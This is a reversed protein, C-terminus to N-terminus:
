TGFSFLSVWSKAKTQEVPRPLGALERALEKYKTGLPDGHNKSLPAGVTIADSVQRFDNPLRFTIRCNTRKQFDNLVADDHHHWRNVVLHLRASRIGQEGLTTIQRELNMLSASDAGGVLIVKDARTLVSNWAHAHGSSLDVVVFGCNSQAIHAVRALSEVPLRLWEDPRSTGALVSLGSKHPTLLGELLHGDLRDLSEVSDSVTFRPQLDLFISVHGLPRAFDLLKVRKETMQALQVGVNVAVTTTGTGGRAGMVVILKANSETAEIRANNICRTLVEKFAAPAARHPLFDQVGNRMAALLVDAPAEDITWALILLNPRLSRLKASQAICSEAEHSLDMVVFDPVSDAVNVDRAQQPTWHRVSGVLGTQNLRAELSNGTEM